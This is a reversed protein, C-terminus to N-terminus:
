YTLAGILAKEKPPKAPDSVGERSMKPYKMAIQAFAVSDSM